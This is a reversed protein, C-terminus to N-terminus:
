IEFNRKQSEFVANEVHARETFVNQMKPDLISTTPATQTGSELKSNPRNKMFFIININKNM